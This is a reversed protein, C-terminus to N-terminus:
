CAALFRTLKPSVSKEPAARDIPSFYRFAQIQIFNGPRINVLAAAQYSLRLIHSEDQAFATVSLSLDTPDTVQELDGASLQVSFAGGVIQATGLGVHAASGTLQDASRAPDKLTIKVLRLVNDDIQIDQPGSDSGEESAFNASGTFILLRNSAGPSAQRANDRFLERADSVQIELCRPKTVNERSKDGADADVDRPLLVGAM